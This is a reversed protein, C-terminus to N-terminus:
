NLPIKEKIKTTLYDVSSNTWSMLKISGDAVNYILSTLNNHVFNSSIRYWRYYKSVNGCKAVLRISYKDKLNRSDKLKKLFGYELFSNPNNKILRDIEQTNEGCARQALYKNHLIYESVLQPNELICLMTLLTELYKRFITMADEFQNINLLSQISILNSILTKFQTIFIYVYDDVKFYNKIKKLNKSDALRKEFSKINKIVDDM